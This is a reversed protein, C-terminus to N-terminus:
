PNGALRAAMGTVARALAGTIREEAAQSFRASPLAVNLAGIATGNGDRVVRALGIIGLHREELSRALRERRVREVEARLASAETITYPTFAERPTEALYTDLAADPMAALLAKGWSTAHLPLRQGVRYGYTLPHRAVASVLVRGVSGEPVVFGASEEAEDSLRRVVPRVLASLDKGAAPSALNALAPGPRWVRGDALVYGEEALTRILLTLSSKPMGLAAALATHTM